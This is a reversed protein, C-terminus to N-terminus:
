QTPAPIVVKIDMESPDSWVKKQRFISFVCDTLSSISPLTNIERWLRCRERQYINRNFYKERNTGQDPTYNIVNGALSLYLYSFHFYLPSKIFQLRQTNNRKYIKRSNCITIKWSDGKVTSIISVKDRLNLSSWNIM